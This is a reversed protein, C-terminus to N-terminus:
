LFLLMTMLGLVQNILKNSGRITEDDYKYAWGDGMKATQPTWFNEGHLQLVPYAEM